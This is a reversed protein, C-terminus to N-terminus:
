FSFEIASRQNLQTYLVRSKHGYSSEVLVTYLGPELDKMLWRGNADTRGQTMPVASQDGEKINGQYVNVTANTVYGIVQDNSGCGSGCQNHNYVINTVTVLIESRTITYFEAQNPDLTDKSCSTIGTLLFILIVLNKM